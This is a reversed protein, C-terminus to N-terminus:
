LCEQIFQNEATKEINMLLVAVLIASLFAYVLSMPQTVIPGEIYYSLINNVAMWFLVSEMFFEVYFHEQQYSHVSFLRHWVIYGGFLAAVMFVYVISLSLTYDVAFYVPLIIKILAKSLTYYRSYDGMYSTTLPNKIFYFTGFILIQVLVLLVIVASLACYVIHIPQYCTEEVKYPSNQQCYFVNVTLALIPGSAVKVNFILQFNVIKKMYKALGGTSKNLISYCSICVLIIQCALYALM